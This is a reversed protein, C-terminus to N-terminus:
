WIGNFRSLIFETFTQVAASFNVSVARALTSHDYSSDFFPAAYQSEAACGAALSKGKQRVIQQGELAVRHLLDFPGKAM